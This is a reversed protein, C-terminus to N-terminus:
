LRVYIIMGFSWVTSARPYIPVSLLAEPAYWRMDKGPEAYRVDKFPCLIQPVGTDTM